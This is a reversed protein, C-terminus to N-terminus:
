KEGTTILVNPDLYIHSLLPHIAKQKKSTDTGPNTFTNGRCHKRIIHKLNSTFSLGHDWPCSLRETWVSWYFKFAPLNIVLFIRGNVFKIPISLRYRCSQKFDNRTSIGLNIAIHLNLWVKYHPIWVIYPELIPFVWYAFIAGMPRSGGFVM